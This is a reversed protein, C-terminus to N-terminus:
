FTRISKLEAKSNINLKRYINKLITNVTHISICLRASIEKASLRERALVFVERERLTLLSAGEQEKRLRVVGRERRSCIARLEAVQQPM